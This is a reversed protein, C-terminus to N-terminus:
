TPEIPKGKRAARAPRIVAGDFQSVRVPPHGPFRAIIEIEAGMAKLYKRLNSVYMDTRREMRSVAAQEVGLAKAVFGQSMELSERIERLTREQQILETSRAEVKAKADETMRGLIEEFPIAM